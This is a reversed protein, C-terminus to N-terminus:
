LLLGLSRTGLFGCLLAPGVLIAGIASAVLSTDRGSAHSGLFLDCTVPLARGLAADHNLVPRVLPLSAAFALGLGRRSSPVAAMPGRVGERGRRVPARRPRVRRGVLLAGVMVFATTTSATTVAM